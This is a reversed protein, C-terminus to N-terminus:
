NKRVGIVTKVYFQVSCFAIGFGAYRLAHKRKIGLYKFSSKLGMGDFHATFFLVILLGTLYGLLSFLVAFAGLDFILSITIFFTLSITILIFVLFGEALPSLRRESVPLASNQSVNKDEM